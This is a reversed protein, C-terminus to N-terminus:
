DGAEISPKNQTARHSIPIVLASGGELGGLGGGRGGEVELLKVGEYIRPIVLAKPHM